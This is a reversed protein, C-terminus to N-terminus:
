QDVILDEIDINTVAFKPIDSDESSREGQSDSEFHKAETFRKFTVQKDLKKVEGIIDNNKPTKKHSYGM